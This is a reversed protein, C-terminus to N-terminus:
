NGKEDTNLTRLIAAIEAERDAKDARTAECYRAWSENLGYRNFTDNANNM